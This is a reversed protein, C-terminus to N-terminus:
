FTGNPMRPVSIPYRVWINLLLLIYYIHFFYNNAYIRTRERENEDM